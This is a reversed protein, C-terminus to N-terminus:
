ARPPGTIVGLRDPERFPLSRFLLANVVSFVGTTIGITLALAVLALVLTFSRRRYVHVAYSLDQRLEHLIEVPISIALDTLARIWFMTRPWPGQIEDYEDWFQRELPREYEERFHAPYLKLLLRYITKPDAM